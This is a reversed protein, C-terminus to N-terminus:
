RQMSLLAGHGRRVAKFGWAQFSLPVVNKKEKSGTQIKAHFGTSGQLMMNQQWSCVVSSQSFIKCRQPFSAKAEDKLFAIAYGPPDEDLDEESKTDKPKGEKSQWLKWKSPSRAQM